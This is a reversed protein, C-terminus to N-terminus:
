KHWGAEANQTYVGSAQALTGMGEGVKKMFTLIECGGYADKNFAKCTASCRERNMFCDVGVVERKAEEPHEGVSM